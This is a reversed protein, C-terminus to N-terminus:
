TPSYRYKSPRRSFLSCIDRSRYMTYEYSHMVGVCIYVGGLSLWGVEGGGDLVM